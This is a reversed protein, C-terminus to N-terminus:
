KQFVQGQKLEDAAVQQHLWWLTGLLWQEPPSPHPPPPAALKIGKEICNRIDLLDQM